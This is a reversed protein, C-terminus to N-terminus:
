SEGLCWCTIRLTNESFFVKTNAKTITLIYIFFGLCITIGFQEVLDGDHVVVNLVHRVEPKGRLDLQCTPFYSAYKKIRHRVWESVQSMRKSGPMNELDRRWVYWLRIALRWPVPAMESRQDSTLFHLNTTQRPRWCSWRHPSCTCWM